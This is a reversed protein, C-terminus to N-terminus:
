REGALRRLLHARAARDGPGDREALLAAVALRHEEDVNGGYKFKGRVDTVHLRLGRIGALTRGHEAPDVWGGGPDVDGQQLRLIAAKGGVGGVGGVEDVIEARATVQVAAYYTTPIGLAPDEDGVAKWRSPVFAWDGAVSLLVMPNEEIAPWIPNPRALHLLIDDGDLSYQTPVVVAVDRGRGAAILQGFGQALLFARAEELDGAADWPHVLM